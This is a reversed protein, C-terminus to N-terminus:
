RIMKMVSLVVSTCDSWSIVTGSHQLSEASSRSILSGLIMNGVFKTSCSTLAFQKMSSMILPLAASVGSLERQMASLSVM